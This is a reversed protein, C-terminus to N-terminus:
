RNVPKPSWGGQERWTRANELLRACDSDRGPGTEVFPVLALLPNVFGLLMAGIGRAALATSDPRIIPNRLSGRVLIPSRAALISADKPRPFLTLNVTEHAVDISGRGLVLTDATDMVLANTTAVGEKVQFDAMACHLRVERDGTAFLLLAEGADLGLLELALNSVTGGHVALSMRGDAHGLLQAVSGGVSALKARGHALGKATKLAEVTPVLESLRLAEFRVDATGRLPEARGDLEIEGVVRGGAAGLELPELRLVGDRIRLTAKLTSIPLAPPHLVKKGVLSVDADMRRWAGADFRKAPLVKPSEKLRQAERRQEPSATEGVTRPPAGILPGLDDFDLVDAVIDLQLHPREEGLQYALTGAVTSDGIRGEFEEFRWEDRMKVLRGALRYPPTPPLDINLAPKLERLDQGAARLRLDLAKPSALGTVSGTAEVATTGLTGKASFPYPEDEGHLLLLLPGQGQLRVRQGRFTGRATVSALDTEDPVTRIEVEVETRTAPDRYWVIGNIVTLRRIAPPPGEGKPGRAWTRLGGQQELSLRPGVLDLRHVVLRRRLLAPVSLELRVAEAALLTPSQAWDPNSVSVETLRLTPRFALLEVALEGAIRVVRGTRASLEQELPERLRNWDFLVAFLCLAVLTSLVVLGAAAAAKTAIRM